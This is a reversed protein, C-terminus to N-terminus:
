NDVQSPVHKYDQFKLLLHLLVGPCKLSPQAVYHSGIEFSCDFDWLVEEPLYLLVIKERAKGVRVDHPDYAYGPTNPFDSKFRSRM